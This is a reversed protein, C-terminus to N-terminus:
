VRSEESRRRGICLMWVERPHLNLQENQETIRMLPRPMRWMDGSRTTSSSLTRSEILGRM